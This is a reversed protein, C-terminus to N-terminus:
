TEEEVNDKMRPYFPRKSLPVVSKSGAEKMTMNDKLIGDFFIQKNTLGREYWIHVGHKSDLHKLLLIITRLFIGCEVCDFGTVTLKKTNRRPKHADRSVAVHGWKRSIEIGHINCVHGVVKPANNGLDINCNYCSYKVM